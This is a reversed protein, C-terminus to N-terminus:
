ELEDGHVQASGSRPPQMAALARELLDPGATELHANESIYRRWRRAGPLGQFLGLVHRSVKRVPVGAELQRELYTTLAHVAAARDPVGPRDFLERQLEALIWPAQYAARGLMVGDFHELHARAAEATTIGGNLVIELGPHENKLRLARDYHLPPVERNQKPSLGSLWAKRAHVIFTSCGSEAVTGIFDSFFAYSDHEDVGLRSKVTVDIDVADRMAAIGDRVLAPELMLCAGFRGKQVRDSPCGVNLNVEDYGAAEAMKACRALDTPESGGLQLALPHEEPNHALHRDRDGHILAGTTVM